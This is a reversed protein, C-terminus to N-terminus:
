SFNIWNLWIKGHVFFFRDLKSENLSSLSSFIIFHTKNYWLRWNSPNLKTYIFDKISAMECKVPSADSFSRKGNAHFCKFSKNGIGLSFTQSWSLNEKINGRSKLLQILYFNIRRQVIWVQFRPLRQPMCSINKSTAFM